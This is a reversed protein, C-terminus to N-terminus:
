QEVSIIQDVIYQGREQNGTEQKDYNEGRWPLSRLYQVYHLNVTKGGCKDLSDAIKKDTVSFYFYNPNYSGSNISGVGYQLQGEYTKFMYGKRSFKLLRGDRMGASYSKYYFWYVYGTVALLLVLVSFFIIKRM